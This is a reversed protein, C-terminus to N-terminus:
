EVVLSYLTVEDEGRASVRPYSVKVSVKFSAVAQRKKYASYVKGLHHKIAGIIGSEKKVEGSFRKLSMSRVFPEEAGSPAVMGLKDRFFASIEADGSLNVEDSVASMLRYHQIDRVFNVLDSAYNTATIENVNNVTGQSGFQFLNMMPVFAMALIMIAVVVEIMTFASTVPRNM